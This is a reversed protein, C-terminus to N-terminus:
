TRELLGAKPLAVLKWMEPGARILTSSSGAERADRRLRAFVVDPAAVYPALCELLGPRGGFGMGAQWVRGLFDIQCLVKNSACVLSAEAKIAYGIGTGRFVVNNVRPPRSYIHGIGEETRM